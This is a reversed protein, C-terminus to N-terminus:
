LPLDKREFKKSGIIYGAIGIGLLVAFKWIFVKTGDIISIADFFSIISVYNFNNLTELRVVTPIVKSGFLGLMTAVLFFM